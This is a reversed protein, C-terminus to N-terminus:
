YNNHIFVIEKEKDHNICWSHFYQNKLDDTLEIIYEQPNEIKPYQPEKGAARDLIEQEMNENMRKASYYWYDSVLYVDWGDVREGNFERGDFYSDEIRECMVPADDSIDKNKEIFERLDKMKLGDSKKYKTLLQEKSIVKM